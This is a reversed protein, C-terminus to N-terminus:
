AYIFEHVFENIFATALLHDHLTYKKKVQTTDETNQSEQGLYSYLRVYKIFMQKTIAM